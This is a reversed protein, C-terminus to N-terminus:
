GKTWYRRVVSEATRRFARTWIPGLNGPLPVMSRAPITVKKAFVFRRKRGRGVPFRLFQGKKPVITAGYQHVTM